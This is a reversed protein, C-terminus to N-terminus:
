LLRFVVVMSILSKISNVVDQANSIKIPLYVYNMPLKNFLYNYITVGFNTPNASVSILLKTKNSFNM